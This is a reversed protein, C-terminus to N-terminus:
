PSIGSQRSPHHSQFSPSVARGGCGGQQRRRQPSNRFVFLDFYAKLHSVDDVDEEAVGQLPVSKGLIDVEDGIHNFVVLIIPHGGEGLREDVGETLVRRDDLLLGAEEM